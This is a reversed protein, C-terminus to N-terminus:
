CKNCKTDDCDKIRKVGKEEEEEEERSVDILVKGEKSAFIKRKKTQFPTNSVHKFRCANECEFAGWKGCHDSCYSFGTTSLKGCHSCPSYLYEPLLNVWVDALEPITNVVHSIVCEECLSKYDTVGNNVPLPHFHGHLFVTHHNDLQPYLGIPLAGTINPDVQIHSSPTAISRRHDTTPRTSM